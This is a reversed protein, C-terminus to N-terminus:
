YTLSLASVQRKTHTHKEAQEPKEKSSHEQRSHISSQAPLCPLALSIPLSSAPRCRPESGQEGDAQQTNFYRQGCTEEELTV